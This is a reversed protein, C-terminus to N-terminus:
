KTSNFMTNNFFVNDGCGVSFRVGYKNNAFTNESVHAGFSELLAIGADGNDHVYNGSVVRRNPSGHLRTDPFASPAWNIDWM